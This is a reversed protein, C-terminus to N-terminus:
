WVNDSGFTQVINCATTVDNAIDTCEGKIVIIQCSKKIEKIILGQDVTSLREAKITHQEFGQLKDELHADAWLFERM